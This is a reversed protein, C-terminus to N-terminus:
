VNGSLQTPALTQNLKQIAAHLRSKVTGVPVALVDAAERYKLGQYYVLVVVKRLSEPLGDVAEHVQSAEEAAQFRDAPGVEAGDLLNMLPGADDDARGDGGMRRDLSVIRHRRNRQQADIAQNTAVTYLWPRVKRSPKFQSCKLHVQLFTTQFADEAMQADGLYIRLYSFLEAEYRHVLEEFATREGENRYAILLEEDSRDSLPIVTSADPRKTNITTNM